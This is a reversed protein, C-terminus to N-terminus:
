TPNPAGGGARVPIIRDVGSIRLVERVTKRPAYAILRGEGATARRYLWVLAGVGTSDCFTLGSLDLVVEPNEGCAPGVTTKLLDVTSLDLYGTLRFLASEEAPMREIRLGESEDTM